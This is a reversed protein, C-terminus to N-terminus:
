VKTKNSFSVFVRFRLYRLLFVCLISQLSSKTSIVIICEKFYFNILSEGKVFVHYSYFLFNCNNDKCFHHISLLSTDLTQVHIINKFLFNSTGNAIRGDDIHKIKIKSRNGLHVQGRGYECPNTIVQM